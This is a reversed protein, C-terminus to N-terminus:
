ETRGMPMSAAVAAIVVQDADRKIVDTFGFGSAEVMRIWRAVSMSDGIRDAGSSPLLATHDYGLLANARSWFRQWCTCHSEQHQAEKQCHESCYNGWQGNAPASCKCGPHACKM